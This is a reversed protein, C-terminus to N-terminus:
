ILWELMGDCRLYVDDTIIRRHNLVEDILRIRIAHGLSMTLTNIHSFTRFTDLKRTVSCLSRWPVIVFLTRELLIRNRCLKHVLTASHNNSSGAHTLNWTRVAALIINLITKQSISGHLIITSRGDHLCYADRFRRDVILKCPLIDWFVIRFMGAHTQTSPGLNSSREAVPYMKKYRNINESNNETAQPYYLFIEKIATMHEFSFAM